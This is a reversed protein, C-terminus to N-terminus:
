WAKALGMLRDAFIHKTRHEQTEKSFCSVFPPCIQLPLDWSNRDRDGKKTPPLNWPHHCFTNRSFPSDTITCTSTAMEIWKLETAVSLIGFEIEPEFPRKIAYPQVEPLWFCWADCSLSSFDAAFWQAGFQQDGQLKPSRRPLGFDALNSINFSLSHTMYTWTENQIIMTM